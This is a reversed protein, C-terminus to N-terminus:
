ARASPKIWKFNFDLPLSYYKKMWGEIIKFRASTYPMTEAFRPNPLEYLVIERPSSDNNITEFNAISLKYHNILNAQYNQKYGDFIISANKISLPLALSIFIATIAVTSRISQSWFSFPYAVPVMLLFFFPLLSRCAVFPSILLPLLSIAASVFILLAVPGARSVFRLKFLLLSWYIAFLFVGIPRWNAYVSIILALSVSYIAIIQKRNKSVQYYKISALGFSIILIVAVSTTERNIALLSTLKYLNIRIIETLDTAPYDSVASREFNGPALITFCSAVLVIFTCRIHSSLANLSLRSPSGLVPWLFIFICAALAVQEHFLAAFALMCASFLKFEQKKAVLLAAYLFFPIGWLYNSSGSFWYLGGVAICAPIALYYTIPVLVPAPWKYAPFCISNVIAIIAVITIVQYLRVWNIGLRYLNILIFIPTVRGSWHFYLDKLYAILKSVPFDKGTFGDQANAYDLTALGYDDFYPFVLLHQSGLYLIFASLAFALLYKLGARMMRSQKVSIPRGAEMANVATLKILAFLKLHTGRFNLTKGAALRGFFHREDYLLDCICPYHLQTLLNIRIPFQELLLWPM